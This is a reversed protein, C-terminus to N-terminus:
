FRLSTTVVETGDLPTTIFNNDTTKINALMEAKSIGGAWGTVGQFIPNLSPDRIFMHLALRYAEAAKSGNISFIDVTQNSSRLSLQLLIVKAADLATRNINNNNRELFYDIEADTIFYFGVINDQTLLRIQQTPTLAM